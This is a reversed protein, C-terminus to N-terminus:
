SSTMLMDYGCSLDILRRGSRWNWL